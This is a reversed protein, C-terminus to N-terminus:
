LTSKLKARIKHDWGHKATMYGLVGASVLLGIQTLDLVISPNPEAFEEQYFDGYPNRSARRERRKSRRDYGRRGSCSEERLALLEQTEPLAQFDAKSMKGKFLRGRSSRRHRRLTRRAKRCSRRKKRRESGAGNDLALAGLVEDDSYNPYRYSQFSKHGPPFFEPAFQSQPWDISSANPVAIHGPGVPRPYPLYGPIRQQPVLYHHPNNKYSARPYSLPM